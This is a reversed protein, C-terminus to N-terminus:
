VDKMVADLSQTARQVSEDMALPQPQGEPLKKVPISATGLGGEGSETGMGRGGQTQTASPSLAMAPPFVPTEAIGDQPVIPRPTDHKTPIVPGNGVPPIPSSMAQPTARLLNAMPTTTPPVAHNSSPTQAPPTPSPQKVPSQGTM